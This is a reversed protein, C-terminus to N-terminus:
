CLHEIGTSERATSSELNMRQKSYHTSQTSMISM